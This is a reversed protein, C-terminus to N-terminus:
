GWIEKLQYAFENLGCVKGISFLIRRIGRRKEKAHNKNNWLIPFPRIITGSIFIIILTLIIGNRKLRGIFLIENCTVYHPNRDFAPKVDSVTVDGFTNWGM